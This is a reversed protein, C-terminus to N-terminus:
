VSAVRVQKVSGKTFDFLLYGEDDGTCSKPEPGEYSYVSYKTRESSRTKAIALAKTRSVLVRTKRFKMGSTRTPHQSAVLYLKDSPKVPRAGAKVGRKATAAAEKAAEFAGAKDAVILAKVWAENVEKAVEVPIMIGKATPKFEGEEPFYNRIDIYKRGKFETFKVGVSISGRPCMFIQDDAKKM